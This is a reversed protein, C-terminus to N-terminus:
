KTKTQLLKHILEASKGKWEEEPPIVKPEEAPKEEVKPEEKPTEAPKEEVKTETKVEEKPEEKPVEAPKEETKAEVKPEEKPTEVPKEEVKPTEVPTEAPKEEVKPVEAPKEPEKAPEPVPEPAKEVPKEETKPTELTKTEVVPATVPTEEPKTEIPVSTETVKTPEAIPAQTPSATLTESKVTPAPYGKKPVCVKKDDDWEEGERCVAESRMGQDEKKIPVCKKEDECWETGEPCPYPEVKAGEVKPVCKKETDDWVEGEKCAPYEEAKEEKGAIFDKAEKETDFVKVIKWLGKGAPVEFVVFKGTRKNKKIVMEALDELDNLDMEEEETDSKKVKIKKPYRYPYKGYYPYRYYPYCADESKKQPYKYPYYYGYKYPYRYYYYKGDKKGKYKGYYPYGYYRYGPYKYYRPYGYYYGKLKKAKRLEDLEEDSSLEIIWDEGDEEIIALRVEVNEDFDSLEETQEPVEEFSLEIKPTETEKPVETVVPKEEAVPKEEKTEPISPQVTQANEMQVESRNEIIEEKKNLSQENCLEKRLQEFHLIFCKECAPNKVLSLEAFHFAYGIKLDPSITKKEMWTSCSVAQFTGDLVLKRADEDEVKAKFVLAKLTPDFHAEIVEGVKHDSFHEDHGHEVLLPKGQLDEAARAIEEPTYIVNKWIGEALAIGSIVIPKNQLSEIVYIPLDLMELSKEGSPTSEKANLKDQAEKLQTKTAVLQATLEEIIGFDDPM